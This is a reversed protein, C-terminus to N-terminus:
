VSYPALVAFPFRTADNTNMANIPNPLAFGLRMSVKLAVMDQQALNFITAGTADQIVAQDLLKYSIDSRMAYVLQSFDGAILVAKTPDYAGNKLYEIRQGYLTSPTDATLSPVFLMGGTTDRLGRLKGKTTGPALFGTVDFGDEEVRSMVTNIDAVYDPTQGLTVVAGAATAGALIDTGWLAPKGVGFIEAADIAKGLAAIIHPKIEGWVDYNADELVANPIPVLVDLFEANIYVNKWSVNSTQILGTDGDRFYATPMSGLVPIRTQKTSMNPLKRALKMIASAQPVAQIIENSVVEPILAGAATRDIVNNFPM